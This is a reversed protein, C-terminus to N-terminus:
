HNAASKALCLVKTVRYPRKREATGALLEEGGLRANEQESGSGAGNPQFIAVHVQLLVERLALFKRDCPVAKTRM